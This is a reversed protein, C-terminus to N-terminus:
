SQNTRMKCGYLSPKTIICQHVCQKHFGKIIRIMCGILATAKTYSPIKL